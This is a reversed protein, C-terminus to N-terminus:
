TTTMTSTIDEMSVAAYRYDGDFTTLCLFSTKYIVRAFHVENSHEVTEM